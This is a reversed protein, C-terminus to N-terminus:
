LDRVFVSPFLCCFTFILFSLYKVTLCYTDRWRIKHKPMVMAFCFPLQLPLPEMITFVSCLLSVLILKLFPFM